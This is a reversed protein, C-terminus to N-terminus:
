ALAGSIAKGLSEWVSRPWSSRCSGCSIEEADTRVTLITGCTEDEEVEVPCAGIKVTRVQEVNMLSLCIRALRAIEKAYEPYPGLSTCAWQQREILWTVAAEANRCPVSPADSFSGERQFVRQWAGLVSLVSLEGCQDEPSSYPSRNPRDPGLLNLIEINLPPASETSKSGSGIREPMSGPMLMAPFRKSAINLFKLNQTVKSRCTTCVRSPADAEHYGCAACLSTSM